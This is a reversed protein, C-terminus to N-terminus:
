LKQLRQQLTTVTITKTPIEIPKTLGFGSYTQTYNNSPYSIERLEHAAADIVFRLKVPDSNQFAAPNSQDLDHLSLNKAFAQMMRVYPMLQVQVDYVYVSRGDRTERKMSSYTPTYVQQARMFDFINQQETPTLNGIPPAPVTGLDLVSQSFLQRLTDSSQGDAKAWVGLINGFDYPSGDAHSQNTTAKLYRVYGDTPTGISETLVHSNSQKLDVLWQTANTGGLQLRIYQDLKQGSQTDTLHKTVSATRLNNQMAGWFVRSPSLYVFHWWVMASVVILLAAAATIIATSYKYSRLRDLM